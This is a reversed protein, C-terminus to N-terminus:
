ASRLSKSTRLKRVHTFVVMAQSGCSLESMLGRSVVTTVQEPSVKKPQRQSSRGWPPSVFVVDSVDDGLLRIMHKVPSQILAEWAETPIEDKVAMFSIVQSETLPIVNDEDSPIKVHKAGLQHLCGQVILPENNLCVPLQIKCFKDTEHHDCAGILM